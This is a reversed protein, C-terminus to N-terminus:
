EDNLDKKRPGMPVPHTSSGDECVPRDGYSESAPARLRGFPGWEAKARAQALAADAKALEGASAPRVDLVDVDFRVRQGALPHNTDLLLTEKGIELVTLMLLGGSDQEAEWQDGVKVDAPFEELDVEIVADAVREGFAEKPGLEVSTRGGPGLGLLANELAHPLQGYGFLITAPDFAEDVCEGDQDFVRVALTM